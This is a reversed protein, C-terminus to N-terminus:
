LSFRIFLLNYIYIMIDLITWKFSKGRLVLLLQDFMSCYKNSMEINM